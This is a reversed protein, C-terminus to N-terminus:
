RKSVISVGSYLRMIFDVTVQSHQTLLKTKHSSQHSHSSNFKQYFKQKINKSSLESGVVSRSQILGRFQAGHDVRAGSAHRKTAFRGGVGRAKEWCTLSIEKTNRLFYSM